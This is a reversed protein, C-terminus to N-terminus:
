ERNKWKGKRFFMNGYKSSQLVINFMFPDAHLLPNLKLMHHPYSGNVEAIRSYYVSDVVRTNLYVTDKPFRNYLSSDIKKITNRIYRITDNRLQRDEPFFIFSHKNRFTHGINKKYTKILKNNDMINLYLTDKAIRIWYHDYQWNTNKGKFLDTNIIYDGDIDSFEVKMPKTFFDNLQFYIVVLILVSIPVLFTTIITSRWSINNKLSKVILAIIFTCILIIILIFLIVEEKSIGFWMNLTLM